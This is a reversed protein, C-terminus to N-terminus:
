RHEYLLAAAFPRAVLITDVPRASSAVGFFLGSSALLLRSGRRTGSLLTVAFCELLVVTALYSLFTASQILFLPSLTVFVAAMLARRSSGLVERALLFTVVVTAGAVFALAA